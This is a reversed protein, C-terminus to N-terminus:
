RVVAGYLAVLATFAWLVYTFGQGLPKTWAPVRSFAERWVDGSDGLARDPVFVVLTRIRFLVGEERVVAGAVDGLPWEQARGSADEYRLTGTQLSLRIRRQDEPMRALGRISLRRLGLLGAVWFAGIVCASVVGFLPGTQKAFLAIGVYVLCFAVPWRLVNLSAGPVLKAALLLDREDFVWAAEVGPLRSSGTDSM